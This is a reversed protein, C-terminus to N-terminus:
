FRWSLSSFLQRVVGGPGQEQVGSLSWFWMRSFQLDLDAQYWLYQQSIGSVLTSTEDRLGGSLSLHLPEVPDFGAMATFLRGDISPNQYFTARGSLSLRMSTLGDTGITGTYATAQGMNAGDSYRFEGGLRLHPVTVGIGGWAGQRFADDFQTAPNIADRYLRVSRRNDYAGYFSLARSARISASVYTSTPSVPSEGLDVKWPRYYDVEQIGHLSFVHSNLGVQLFAFERNTTGNAYSGVAGTSVSWRSVSQPSSRLQLYAGADLVDTTFGLDAPTPEFGGFAGASLRSSAYGAVAGDLLSVSSVAQLYHRGISSQFGTGRANWLLAAQYVRARGDVASSGDAKIVATRRARVDAVVGLPSGGLRNGDLRLDLSPQSTGGGTSADRSLLYRAGIRGHIGQGSASRPASRVTEAVSTPAPAAQPHFRVTEGVAVDTPGRVVECSAQRSSLFVVKLTGAVSDGRVLEIEQSEVLGDTRGADIYISSGAHYTVHATRVAATDQAAATGAAGLLVLLTLLRIPSVIRDSMIETMGGTRNSPM